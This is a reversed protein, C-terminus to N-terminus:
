GAENPLGASGVCVPDNFRAMPEDTQNPTQVQSVFREANERLNQEVLIETASGGTELNLLYALTPLVLM